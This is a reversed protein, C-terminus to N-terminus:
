FRIGKGGGFHNLYKVVIEGAAVIVAIVILIIIIWTIYTMNNSALDDRLMTLLDSIVLCRDRLVKARQGIELYGRIADYLPQM